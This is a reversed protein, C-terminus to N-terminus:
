LIDVFNAEPDPEGPPTELQVIKALKAAIRSNGRLPTPTSPSRDEVITPIAGPQQPSVSLARKAATAFPSSPVAPRTDVM